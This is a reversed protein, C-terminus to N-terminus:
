LATEIFDEHGDTNKDAIKRCKAHCNNEHNNKPDIKFSNGVDPPYPKSKIGLKLPTENLRHDQM